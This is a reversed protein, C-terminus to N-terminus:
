KKLEKQIDDIILRINGTSEYIKMERDISDISVIKVDQLIKNIAFLKFLIVLLLFTNLLLIFKISKEM